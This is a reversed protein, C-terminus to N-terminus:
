PKEFANNYNNHTKSAGNKGKEVMLYGSTSILFIFLVIPTNQKQM